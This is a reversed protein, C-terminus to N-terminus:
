EEFMAATVDHSCEIRVIVLVEQTGFRSLWTLGRAECKLELM